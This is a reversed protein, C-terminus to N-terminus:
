KQLASTALYSSLQGLGCGLDLALLGTLDPLLELFLPHELANEAGSV